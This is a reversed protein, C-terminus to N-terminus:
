KVHQLESFLIESASSDLNEVKWDTSRGILYVKNLARMFVDNGADRLKRCTKWLKLATLADEISDHAGGQIDASLLLAALFRLSLKRQRELHFLEVTDIVRDPPPTVNIIRFDKALGHGLLVVGRDILCRLKLYVHKLTALHRRSTQPDLDGPAIGSFRTLYDVVPEHTALYDDMFCEGNERCLSVRALAFHAPNIIARRGDERIETEEAGLSVFEADLAVVDGAGPITRRTVPVFTRPVLQNHQHYPSREFFVDTTIAARRPEPTVRRADTRALLCEFQLICPWKWHNFRLVHRQPVALVHFDNILCWGDGRRVHTILHGPKGASKDRDWVQSVTGVLEYISWGDADGADGLEALYQARRVGDADLANSDGLASAAAAAASDASIGDDADDRDDTASASSRLTASTKDLLAISAAMDSDSPESPADFDLKTAVKGGPAVGAAGAGGGAADDDDDNARTSAGRDDLERQELARLERVVTEGSPLIRCAFAPPVFAPSLQPQARKSPTEKRTFFADIDDDGPTRWFRDVLSPSVPTHLCLTGPLSALRKVQTTLQYQKCRECWTKTRVKKEFTASLVDRFSATGPAAAGPAADDGADPYAVDYDFFSADRTTESRCSLCRSRTSTTASFLTTCISRGHLATEKHLQEFLFRTFQQVLRPYTMQDVDADAPEALGLAAVQPIQRLARLFNSTQCVAANRSELMHFLFGLECALCFETKCVHNLLHARLARTHFLLQMVANTYANPIMNELGCVDDTENYRAFDFLSLGLKTHKVEIYRYSKPPRYEDLPSKKREAAGPTALGQVDHRKMGPNRIYGVFDHVKMQALLEAPLVRPPEGVRVRQAGGVDSLLAQRKGGQQRAQWVGVAGVAASAQEALLALPASDAMNPDTSMLLQTTTVRGRGQPLPSPLVLNSPLVLGRQLSLAVHDRLAADSDVVLPAPTGLAPQLLAHPALRADVRDVFSHLVGAADGIVILEGSPAIDLATPAAALAVQFSQALALSTLADVSTDILQVLGSSQVAVVTSYLRPHFRVLQAGSQCPIPALARRMRLDFLKVFPEAVLRGHRSVFGCTTMIDGKVDIDSIGSTHADIHAQFSWTRQDLLSVRGNARACCVARGRRVAVVPSQDDLALSANPAGRRVDIRTVHTAGGVALELPSIAGLAHVPGALAPAVAHLLRGGREFAAVSGNALALWLAAEQPVLGVVPSESRWASHRRWEPHVYSAVAADARVSWLLSHFSDVCVASIPASEQVAALEFWASSASDLQHVVDTGTTTASPGSSYLPTFEAANARLQSSGNSTWSPALSSSLSSPQFEAADLRLSSALSPGSSGFRFEPAAPNVTPATLVLSISV